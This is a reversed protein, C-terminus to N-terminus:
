EGAPQITVRALPFGPIDIVMITSMYTGGHTEVTHIEAGNQKVAVAIMNHICALEEMTM